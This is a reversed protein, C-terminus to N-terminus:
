FPLQLAKQMERLRLFSNKFIECYECFFVQKSDRKLLNAVKNILSDLVFKKKRKKIPIWEMCPQVAVVLCPTALFLLVLLNFYVSFRKLFRKMDHKKIETITFRKQSINGNGLIGPSLGPLRHPQKIISWFFIAMVITRLIFFSITIGAKDFLPQRLSLSYQEHKIKPNIKSASNLTLM